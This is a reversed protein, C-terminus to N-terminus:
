AVALSASDNFGSTLHTASRQKLSVLARSGGAPGYVTDTANTTDPQGHAVYSGTTYV